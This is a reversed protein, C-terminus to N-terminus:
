ADPRPGEVREKVSLLWQAIATDGGLLEFYQIACGSATEALGVHEAVRWYVCANQGCHVAPLGNALKLECQDNM